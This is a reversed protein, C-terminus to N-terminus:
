LSGSGEEVVINRYERARDVIEWLAHSWKRTKWYWTKEDPSLSMWCPECM